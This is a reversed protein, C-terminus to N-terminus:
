VRQTRTDTDDDGAKHRTYQLHEIFTQQICWHLCSFSFVPFYQFSTIWFPSPFIPRCSLPSFAVFVFESTLMYAFLTRSMQFPSAISHFLVVSEARLSYSYTHGHRAYLLSGYTTNAWYMFSPIFSHRKLSLPLVAPRRAYGKTKDSTNWRFWPSIRCDMM